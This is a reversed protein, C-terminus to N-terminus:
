LLALGLSIGCIVGISGTIVDLIDASRSPTLSQLGELVLGLVGMLVAAILARRRTPHSTMALLSLVFYAGFHLVKDSIEFQDVTKILLSDDPLLSSVAM